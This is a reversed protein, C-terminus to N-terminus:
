PGPFSLVTTAYFAQAPKSHPANGKALDTHSRMSESRQRSVIMGPGSTTPGGLFTLIRSGQRMLSCELVPSTSMPSPPSPLHSPPRSATGCRAEPLPGVAISLAAGGCRQMRQDGPCPWPDRQLSELLTELTFQCEGVPMLFRNGSDTAPSPLIIYDTGALTPPAGCICIRACAHARSSDALRTRNRARGVRDWAVGPGTPDRTQASVPM